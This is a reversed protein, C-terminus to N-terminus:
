SDKAVNVGATLWAYPLDPLGKFRENGPKEWGGTAETCPAVPHQVAQAPRTYASRSGRVVPENRIDPAQRFAVVLILFGCRTLEDFERRTGAPDREGIKGHM